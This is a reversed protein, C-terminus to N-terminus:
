CKVCISIFYIMAFILKSANNFTNNMTCSLVVSTNVLSPLSQNFATANRFMSSFDSCLPATWNTLPKNSIDTM